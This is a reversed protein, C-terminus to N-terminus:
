GRSVLDAAYEAIPKPLGSIWGKLRRRLPRHGPLLMRQIQRVSTFDRRDFAIDAAAARRIAISALVAQRYAAVAPRTALVHELIRAEGLNMTLVDGSFNGSHQRIGVLPQQVVGIPQEAVRLATAFDTGIIRSVAEDWGGANLFALRDVVMASPFFPQFELLRDVIPQEFICIGPGVPRLDRWFGSPADDFKTRQNWVDNRITQFNGYAATLGPARQWLGAMATLFGPRWLDDSDCFAVLSGSAARMGVNRAALDGGNTVRITRVQSYTALVAPTDDTSGDDVVIVETPPTDQALIADLTAGVLRARNYVPVIVSFSSPNM